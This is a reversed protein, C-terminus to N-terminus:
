FKLDDGGVPSAESLQHLREYVGIMHIAAARRPGQAM